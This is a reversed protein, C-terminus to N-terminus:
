EGIRKLLELAPEYDPKLMLAKQLNERGEEIRGLGVSLVARLYPVEPHNPGFIRAKNLSSSAQQEAGSVNLAVLGVYLSASSIHATYSRPAAETASKSLFVAESIQNQINITNEKAPTAAAQNALEFAVRSADEAYQPAGWMSVAKRLSTVATDIDKAVFADVGQAHYYAASLQIYSVWICLMGLIFFVAVCVIRVFPNSFLLSSSTIRNNMGRAAIGAALAGLLFLPTDITYVLGSIFTFLALLLLVVTLVADKNDRIPLWKRFASVFFLPYLLFVVLGVLGLTVAFTAATSYGAVFSIGWLPTTNVEIPQYKDWVDAFTNPGSGFSTGLIGSFYVPGGVLETATPTLRVEPSVSLLPERFGFFLLIVLLVVLVTTLTPFADAQKVDRLLMIYAGFFLLITAILVFATTSNFFLLFMLGLLASECLLLIKVQVSEKGVDFLITTCVLAAAVFFAVHPWYAVLSDTGFFLAIASVAGILTAVGTYIHLLLRAPPSPLLSGVFFAAACLVFSIVTGIESGVGFFSMPLFGAFSWSLIGAFVMPIGVFSLVQTPIVFARRSVVGIGAALVCAAGLFFLALPGKQFEASLSIFPIRLIPLLIVALAYVFAAASITLGSLNM